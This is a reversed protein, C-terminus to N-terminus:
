QNHSRERRELYRQNIVEVTELRPRDMVPVYKGAMKPLDGGNFVKQSKRGEKAAQDVPEALAEDGKGQSVVVDLLSGILLEDVKRRRWLAWLTNVLGNAGYRLDDLGPVSGVVNGQDYAYVWRLGNEDNEHQPEPFVCDWLVLPADPSMEYAPRRTHVTTDLLRAVLDPSELGQGILFLIAVMHRIQHWLFASGHVVFM